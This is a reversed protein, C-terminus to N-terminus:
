RVSCLLKSEGGSTRARLRTVKGLLKDSCIKVLNLLVGAVIPTAIHASLSVKGPTYFAELALCGSASAPAPLNVAVMVAHAAALLLSAGAQENYLHMRPWPLLSQM